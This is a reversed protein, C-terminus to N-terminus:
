RVHRVRPMEVARIWGEGFEGAVKTRLTFPGAEVTATLTRAQPTDAHLDVEALVSDGQLLQLAGAYGHAHARVEVVGARPADFDAFDQPRTLVLLMEPRDVFAGKKPKLLHPKVLLSICDLAELGDWDLVQQAEVRLNSKSAYHAFLTKTMFNRISPNELWNGGPNGDYNSHHIFATGGPVLIREFELLYSRIVDSDFHVMADFCYVHTISAPRIAALGSGDNKLYRIKQDRGKFRERCFAVNSENIDVLVLHEVLPLLM